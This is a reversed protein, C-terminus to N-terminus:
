KSESLNYNEKGNNVVAVLWSLIEKRFNDYNEPHLTGFADVKGEEFLFQIQFWEENNYDEASKEYNYWNIIKNDNFIQTLKPFDLAETPLDYYFRHNGKEFYEGSISKITIDFSTTRIGQKAVLIHYEDMGSKGHQIFNVMIMELEGSVGKNIMELRKQELMKNVFPKFISDMQIKFDRYNNPTKNHGSAYITKSQNDGLYIALSFGSGDCVNSNVGKFGDWKWLQFDNYLKNLQNMFNVDLELIMEGYERYELSEYKFQFKGNDNKEVIYNYNNRGITGDYHYNFYSIPLNDKPSINQSNPQAQNKCGLFSFLTTLLGMILLKLKNKLM